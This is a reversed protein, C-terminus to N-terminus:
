LILAKTNRLYTLRHMTEAWHSVGTAKPVASVPNMGNRISRVTIVCISDGYSMENGDGFHMNLSHQSVHTRQINHISVITQM